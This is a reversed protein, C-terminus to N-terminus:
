DFVQLPLEHCVEELAVELLMDFYELIMKMSLDEV